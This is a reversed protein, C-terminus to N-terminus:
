RHGERIRRVPASHNNKFEFNMETKQAIGTVICCEAGPQDGPILVNWKLVTINRGYLGIYYVLCYSFAYFATQLCAKTLFMNIQSTM